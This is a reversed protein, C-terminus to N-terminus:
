HTQTALTVAKSFLNTRKKLKPRSKSRIRKVVENVSDDFEKSVIVHRYGLKMDVLTIKLWDLQDPRVFCKAGEPLIWSFGADELADRCSQLEPAEKLATLFEHPTKNYEDIYIDISIPMGIDRATHM